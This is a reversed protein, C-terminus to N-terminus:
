EEIIKKFVRVELTTTLNNNVYEMETKSIQIPFGSMELADIFNAINPFSSTLILALETVEYQLENKIGKNNINLKQIGTMEAIKPLTAIFESSSKKVFGTQGLSDYEIQLNQLSKEYYNKNEVDSIIQQLEILEANITQYNIFNYTFFVLWLASTIIIIFPINIRKM